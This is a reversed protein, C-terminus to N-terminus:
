LKTCIVIDDLRKVGRLNHRPHTRADPFCAEGFSLAVGGIKGTPGCMEIAIRQGVAVAPIDTKGM